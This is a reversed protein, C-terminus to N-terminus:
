IKIKYIASNPYRNSDDILESYSEWYLDRTIRTTTDNSTKKVRIDIPHSGSLNIRYDRNYADATRGKITDTVKTSFGGGNYQVQIELTIKSGLVDGDEELKQLVPVSVTVRVADLDTNNTLQRTVANANGKKVEVGVNFLSASGKLGKMKSQNSTGFRVDFGVNKHNFDVKRPNNSNATSQM